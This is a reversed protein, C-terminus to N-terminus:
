KPLFATPRIRQIAVIDSILANKKEWQVIAAKRGNCGQTFGMFLGYISTPVYGFSTCAMLVVPEGMTWEYGKPLKEISYRRSVPRAIEANEGNDVPQVFRKRGDTLQLRTVFSFRKPM